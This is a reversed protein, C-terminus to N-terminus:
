RSSAPDVEQEAPEPAMKEMAAWWAPFDLKQIEVVGLNEAKALVGRLSGVVRPNLPSALAAHLVFQVLEVDRLLEQCQHRGFSGDETAGYLLMRLYALFNRQIGIEDVARASTALLQARADGRHFATEPDFAVLKEPTQNDRSWFVKVGEPTTFRKLSLKVACKQFTSLLKRQLVDLAPSPTQGHLGIDFGSGIYLQMWTNAKQKDTMESALDRALSRERERLTLYDPFNVFRDWDIVGKWFLMWHPSGLIGDCFFGLGIGIERILTDIVQLVELRKRITAQRDADIAMSWAAERGRILRNWIADIRTERDHADPAGMLQRLKDEFATERDKKRAELLVNFEKWTIVPPQDVLHYLDVLGYETLYLNRERIAECLRLFRERKSHPSKPAFRTEPREEDLQEKKRIREIVVGGDISKVVEEDEILYLSEALFELRLMQVILAGYLDIEDVTYRNLQDSLSRVLRLFLKLQRPNKPLYPGIELIVKPHPLSSDSDIISRVARQIDVDTVTPLVRPYEIIKDLFDQPDELWEPHAKLLGKRVIDPSLALLYHVGPLSMAERLTLLIDPIQAPTTRDLDDVIVVARKKGLRAEIDRLLERGHRLKLRNAVKDFVPRAARMALTMKLDLGEGIRTASAGFEAAKSLRSWRKRTIGLEDALDSLLRSLVAETSGLAWPLLWVTVHGENELYRGVLELVSTKGSGWEGYIGFRHSTERPFSLLHDGLEQAWKARGFLDDSEVTIPSDTLSILTRLTLLRASSSLGSLSTQLPWPASCAM